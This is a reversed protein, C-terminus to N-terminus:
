QRQRDEPEDLVLGHLLFCAADNRLQRDVDGCIEQILLSVVDFRYFFAMLHPDQQYRVRPQFCRM